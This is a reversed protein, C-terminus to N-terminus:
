SSCFFFLVEEIERKIGKRNPLCVPLQKVGHYQRTWENRKLHSVGKKFVLESREVWLRIARSIILGANSECNKVYTVVIM